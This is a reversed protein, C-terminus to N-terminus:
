RGKRWPKWSGDAYPAFLRDISPYWADLEIREPYDDRLSSGPYAFALAPITGHNQGQERPAANEILGM